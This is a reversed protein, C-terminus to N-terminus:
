KEKYILNLTIGVLMALSMGILTFNGISIVAGGLGVVLMTSVIVLNRTISLDVNNKIMVRVGSSAILGYLIITM